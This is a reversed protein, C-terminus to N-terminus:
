RAPSGNNYKRDVARRIGLVIPPSQDIRRVQPNGSVESARLISEEAVEAAALEDEKESLAKSRASASMANPQNPLKNVEEELKEILQNQNLWAAIAMPEAPRALPGVAGNTLHVTLEDGRVNLVPKCGAALTLVHERIKLCVDSKPLPASRITAISIKLATIDRRISELSLGNPPPLEFPELKTGRPLSRLWQEINSILNANAEFRAYHQARRAEHAARQAQFEPDDQLEPKFSLEGDLDSIHKLSAFASDRASDREIALNRLRQRAIPPLLDPAPAPAAPPQHRQRAAGELAARLGGQKPVPPASM